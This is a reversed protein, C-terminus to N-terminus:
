RYKYSITCSTKVWCSLLNPPVGDDSLQKVPICSIEMKLTDLAEDHYGAKRQCNYLLHYKSALQVQSRSIVM